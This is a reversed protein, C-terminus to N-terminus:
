VSGSSSSPSAPSGRDYSWDPKGGEITSTVSPGILLLHVEEAAYPCHEVGKPVVFLDGTALHVDGTRLQITIEGRLVLFTEDQDHHAHWNTAGIGKAVKFLNGNAEALTSQSWFGTLAAARNALNIANV